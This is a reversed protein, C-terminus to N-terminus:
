GAIFALRKASTGRGSPNVVALGDPAALVPALDVHRYGDRRETVGRSLDDAGGFDGAVNGRRM